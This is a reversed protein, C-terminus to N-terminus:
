PFARGDGDLDICRLALVRWTDTPENSLAPAPVRVLILSDPDSEFRMEYAFSVAEELMGAVDGGKRDLREASRAVCCDIAMTVHTATGAPRSSTFRLRITEQSPPQKIRPAFRSRSTSAAVPVSYEVQANQGYFATVKPASLIKSEPSQQLDNLFTAFADHDVRVHTGKLQYEVRNARPEVDSGEVGATPRVVAPVGVRTFEVLPGDQWAFKDLRADAACQIMRLEFVCQGVGHERLHQLARAIRQHDERSASVILRQSDLSLEIPNLPAAQPSGQGLSSPLEPAPQPQASTTVQTRESDVAAESTSQGDGFEQSNDLPFRVLNSLIEMRHDAGTAPAPMRQLLDSVDYAVVILAQDISAAPPDAWTVAVAGSWLAPSVLLLAIRVFVSGLAFTRDFPPM